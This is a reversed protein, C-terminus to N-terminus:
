IMLLTVYGEDVKRFRIEKSIDGKFKQSIKWYPVPFRAGMVLYEVTGDDLTRYISCKEGNRIYKNKYYQM